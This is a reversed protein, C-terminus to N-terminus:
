ASSSCSEAEAAEEEGSETETGSEESESESWGQRESENVSTARRPRGSRLCCEQRGEVEVEVSQVNVESAQEVELCDLDEQDVHGPTGQFETASGHTPLPSELRLTTHGVSQCRIASPSGEDLQVDALNRVTTATDDVKQKKWKQHAVSEKEEKKLAKRVLDQRADILQLFKSSLCCRKKAAFQRLILLAQELTAQIDQDEYHCNPPTWVKGFEDVIVLKFTIITSTRGSLLRNAWAKFPPQAM